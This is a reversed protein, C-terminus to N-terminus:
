YSTRLKLPPTAAWRVWPSASTPAHWCRRTMLATAWLFALKGRNSRKHLAELLREVHEVKDAPLLQTFARDLGLRKAIKQGVADSDGTLMVTERVGCTKLMKIAAAADAKVEDEILIYGAFKGDVAAYIVTGAETCPTYSIKERQMLKGNGCLVTQGGIVARVGHGAIEEINKVMGHKIDKGYARKISLSIPHNSYDEAYATLELLEAKTMGVPNISTVAFSGKTLTGTKDFVITETDALAELYNSGKVLVGCKSAGGIGGFFSLPISIGGIGGFFSLPISIVLACPCSIVLFTLARYIWGSFPENLVYPPITALLLAAFVVIPTYFKAFRTIFNESRAKKESSNEVLDLIKAVTSEGFEKTTKIKLIGTQNICGSIVEMGEEVERPLSEGTLASTDLASRGSIIEGDIPVREGPKVTIIEGVAVEDPDVQVLEISQRSRSVAYSQFWEGIQYFLMVAVGESYEGLIFAGATAVTMLFNEDFAEGQRINCFAKWIIDWGIIIYSIGFLAFIIYDSTEAFLPLLMGAAFLIAAATIRQLLKKQKKTM